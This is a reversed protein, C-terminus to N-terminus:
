QIVASQAGPIVVLNEGNIFLDDGKAVTVIVANDNLM